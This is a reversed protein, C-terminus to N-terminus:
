ADAGVERTTQCHAELEHMVESDALLRGKAIAFIKSREQIFRMAGKVTIDPADTIYAVVDRLLQTQAPLDSCKGGKGGKRSIVDERLDSADKKEQQSDDFLLAAKAYAKAGFAECALAVCGIVSGSRLEKFKSKTALLRVRNIAEGYGIASLAVGQFPSILFRSSGSLFKGIMQLAPAQAKALIKADKTDATCYLQNAVTRRKGTNANLSIGSAFVLLMRVPKGYLEIGKLRIRGFGRMVTNNLEKGDSSRIVVPEGTLAFRGEQMARAMEGAQALEKPTYHEKRIWLTAMGPTIDEFDSALVDQPRKVVEVMKATQAGKLKDEQDEQTYQTFITRITDIYGGEELKHKLNQGADLGTQLLENVSVQVGERKLDFSRLIVRLLAPRKGGTTKVQRNRLVSVVARIPSVKAGEASEEEPVEGLEGIYQLVQEPYFEYLMAMAAYLPACSKMGKPLPMDLCVDLGKLPDSDSNRRFLKIVEKAQALSPPYCQVAFALISTLTGSLKKGEPEDDDILCAALNRRRGMDILDQVQITQPELQVPGGTIDLTGAPLTLTSPIGTVVQFTAPIGSLAIAWLRHQGDMLNGKDDFVIPEFTIDWNGTILDYIYRSVISLYINRNRPNHYKLWYLAQEQTVLVFRIIQQGPPTIWLGNIPKM